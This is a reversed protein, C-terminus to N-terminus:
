FNLHNIYQTQFKQSTALEVFHVDKALAAAHGLASRNLAALKAGEGATNGINELFINRTNM